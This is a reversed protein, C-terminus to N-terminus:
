IGGIIRGGVAGSRGKLTATSLQSLYVKTKGKVHAIVFSKPLDESVNVIEGRQEAQKLFARTIHSASSNDLDFISVIDGKPIIVDQGLHLYM